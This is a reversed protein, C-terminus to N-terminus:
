WFYFIGSALQTCAYHPGSNAVGLNEPLTNDAMWVDGIKESFNRITTDEIHPPAGLIKHKVQGTLKDEGNM